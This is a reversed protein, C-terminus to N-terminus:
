LYFLYQPIYLFSLSVEIPIKIAFAAAVIGLGVLPAYSWFMVAFLAQQVLM